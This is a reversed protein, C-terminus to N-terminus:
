RGYFMRDAIKGWETYLKQRLVLEDAKQRLAQVQGQDIMKVVEHPDIGGERSDDLYRGVIESGKDLAKHLDPWDPYAAKVRKVFEAPYQKKEM